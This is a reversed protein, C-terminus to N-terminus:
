GLQWYVSALRALVVTNIGAFAFLTTDLVWRHYQEPFLTNLGVAIFTAIPLLAPFMYRGQDSDYNHAYYFTAALSVAIAAIFFYVLQRPLDRRRGFAYQVMGLVAIAVFWWYFRNIDAYHFENIRGFVAWFTKFLTIASQKEHAWTVPPPIYGSGNEIIKLSQGYVFWNRVFWWGATSMIGLAFWGCRQLSTRRNPSTALIMLGAASAFGIASLNSLMALGAVVGIWAWRANRQQEDSLAAKACLHFGLSAFFTALTGNRITASLYSYTPLLGVASCILIVAFPRTPFILSAFYYAILITLMSFVINMFRLMLLPREDFLETSSFLPASLLYYLPPQHFELEEARVAPNPQIPLYRFDHIFRVYSYHSYEDPSQFPPTVLAYAIRIVFALALIAYLYRRTIRQNV